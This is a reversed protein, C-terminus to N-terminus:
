TTRYKNYDADEFVAMHYKEILPQIDKLGEQNKFFFSNDLNLYNATEVGIFACYTLCDSLLRLYHAFYAKDKEEQIRSNRESIILIGTEDGHTVHSAMRYSHSLTVFMSMPKGRYNKSLSIVMETFSWKQELRQRDTKSWKARLKLEQEDTLVNPSYALKHIENNGLYLLNKKAQESQKLSNVEALDYWFEDLRKHQETKDASTIFVLKIFTELASRLVIEADWTKDSITLTTVTELRDIIFEILPFIQEVEKYNNKIIRFLEINNLNILSLHVETIKQKDETWSM